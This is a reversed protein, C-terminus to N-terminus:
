AAGILHSDKDRRLKQLLGRLERPPLVHGGERYSVAAKAALVCKGSWAPLVCKGSWIALSGVM